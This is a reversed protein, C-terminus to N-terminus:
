AASTSLVPADALPHPYPGALRHFRNKLLTKWQNECHVRVVMVEHMGLRRDTRVLVARAHRPNVDRPCLCNAESSSVTLDIGYSVGNVM